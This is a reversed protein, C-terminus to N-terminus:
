SICLIKENVNQLIALNSACTNGNVQVGYLIHVHVYLLTHPEQVETQCINEQKIFFALM